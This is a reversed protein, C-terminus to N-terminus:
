EVLLTKATGINATASVYGVAGPYKLVFKVVAEDSELEVPPVGRGSFILQQWYARVAQVSRGIVLETFRKRLASSAPLDAARIAQDHPWSAIKKLYAARLFERTVKSTPNSPHTIVVLTGAPTSPEQQAVAIGRTEMGGHAPMVLLLFAGLCVSRLGFGVRRTM